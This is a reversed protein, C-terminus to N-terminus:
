PFKICSWKYSAYGCRRGSTVNTQTFGSVTGGPCSANVFASISGGNQPCPVQSGEGQVTFHAEAKVGAIRSRIADAELRAAAVQARLADAENKLRIQEQTAVLIALRNANALDYGLMEETPMAVSYAGQNTDVLLELRSFKRNGNSTVSATRECAVSFPGKATIQGTTASLQASTGEGSINSRCIAVSTDYQVSNLTVNQEAPNFGVRVVLSRSDTSIHSIQVRKGELAICQNFSQLADVVVRNNLQYLSDFRSLRESHTKCFEQMTQKAEAQSGSFGVKIAKVPVTLDINASSSKISGSSECHRSFLENQETLVRSQIDVNRVSDAYVSQCTSSNQGHAFSTLLSFSSVVVLFHNM